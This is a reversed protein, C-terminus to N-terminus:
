ALPKRVAASTLERRAHNGIWRATDDDSAALRDCTEVAAANLAQNRKGTARLAMDVAKKVFHREDTAAREVLALADVFRENPADKDHVSLAWLLAFAARKTFEPKARSWQDVKKWAHATRDFLHFCVTDVIAWNDFDAAWANMQSLTVRAPEAVFAALTQAEYRGTDWLQLALDHHKGLTKAHSKLEGMAIGYPKPATIGYRELEAVQKKTGTRELWRLVDRVDSPARGTM